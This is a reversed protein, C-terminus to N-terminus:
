SPCGAILKAIEAASDITRRSELAEALRAIREKHETVLRDAEAESHGFAVVWQDGFRERLYALAHAVDNDDDTVGHELELGSHRGAFGGASAIIAEDYPGSQAPKAIDCGGERVEDAVTSIRLVERGLSWAVVAHGAEHWCTWKLALPVRTGM